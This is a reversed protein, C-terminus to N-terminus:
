LTTMFSVSIGENPPQDGTTSSPTQTIPEATTINQSVVRTTCKAEQVHTTSQPRHDPMMCLPYSAPQNFLDDHGTASTFFYGLAIDTGHLDVYLHRIAVLIDIFPNDDAKSSRAKQVVENWLGCFDRQLEPLTNLIDFKSLSSLISSSKRTLDSDHQLLSHFFQRTIHIVNALLVSDGHALYDRLVDKSIGLEDMALMSWRENREADSIINSIIGRALSAANGNRLRRLSHGTEVSRSVGSLDGYFLHLIHPVAISLDATEILRVCVVLRRVKVSETVRNSSLTRNWFGILAEALRPLGLEELSSRPNDVLKSACFGPIAEFFQELDDDSRSMDLTETLVNSDSRSGQEQIKEQASPTYYCSSAELIKGQRRLYRRHPVLQKIFLHVPYAVILLTAIIATVFDVSFLYYVLGLFFIFLSVIILIQFRRVTQEAREIRGTFYAAMRAQEPLSYRPSTVWTRPQALQQLVLAHLACYISFILGYIWFLNIINPLSPSYGQSDDTQTDNSPATSQSTPDISPM